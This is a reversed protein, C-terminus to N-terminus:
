KAAQTPRPPEDVQLIQDAKVNTLRQVTGSPWLVEVTDAATNKGL